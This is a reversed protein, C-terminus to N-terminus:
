SKLLGFAGTFVSPYGCVSLIGDNDRTKDFGDVVNRPMQRTQRPPRQCKWTLFGKPRALFGQFPM